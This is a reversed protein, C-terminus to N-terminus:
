IYFFTLLLTKQVNQLVITVFGIIMPDIMHDQMHDLMYDLMYDLVHSVLSM